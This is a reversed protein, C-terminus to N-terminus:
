EERLADMPDVRGARWAPIAGAVLAVAGLTIASIALVRPDNPSFGFLFSEILKMGSVVCIGGILVGAVVLGTVERLVMQMVASRGSGLAMRIGIEGRRRAVNYSMIGYLGIMALVLALGGFFASLTALLRERAISEGLQVELKVFQLSATPDLQTAMAKFGPILAAADGNTKLSVTFYRGPASDQNMSLYSIPENPKKLDNYKSDGVVGIIQIPPSKSAPLKTSFHRGVVNTTGFFRKAFSENVVAVKPSTSVDSKSFDRGALLRMGYTAFFDESVQNMWSLADDESKPSYGDVVMEDNWSSGSVPTMMSIAAAKAGPLSRARELLDLYVPRQRAEPLNSNSMNISAILVGEQEFGPDMTALARFSGLLLTAGTVLVLSLAIQAIVLAKGMNFRSHGQVVSRGNAKMVAQPEV